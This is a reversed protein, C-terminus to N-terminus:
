GPEYGAHLASPESRRPRLTGDVIATLDYKVPCAEISVFLKGCGDKAINQVTGPAWAAELFRRRTRPRIRDTGAPRRPRAGLWDIIRM